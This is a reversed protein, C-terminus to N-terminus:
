ILDNKYFHGGGFGDNTPPLSSGFSLIRNLLTVIGFLVHSLGVLHLIFFVTHILLINSSGITSSSQCSQHHQQQNYLHTPTNYIYDNHGGYNAGIHPQQQQKHLTTYPSLYTTLRKWNSTEAQQPQFDNNEKNEFDNTDQAKYKNNEETNSLDFNQFHGDKNDKNIKTKLTYPLYNTTNVHSKNETKNDEATIIQIVLTQIIVQTILKLCLM